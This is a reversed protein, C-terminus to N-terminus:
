CCYTNKIQENILPLVRRIYVPLNGSTCCADTKLDSSKQLVTGYYEKVVDYQSDSQLVDTQPNM